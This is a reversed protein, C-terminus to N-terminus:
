MTLVDAPKVDLRSLHRCRWSHPFAAGVSAVLLAVDAVMDAASQPLLLIAVHQALISMSGFPKQMRFAQLDERNM